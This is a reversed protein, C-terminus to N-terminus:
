NYKLARYYSTALLMCACMNPLETRSRWVEPTCAEEYIELTQIYRSLWIVEHICFFYHYEDFCVRIIGKWTSTMKIRPKRTLFKKLNRQKHKDKIMERLKKADMTSLSSNCERYCYQTYKKNSKQWWGQLKM